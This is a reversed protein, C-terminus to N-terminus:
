NMVTVVYFFAAFLVIAAVVLVIIMAAMMQTSQRRRSRLSSGARAPGGGAPVEAAPHGAAIAQPVVGQPAADAFRGLQPFVQEALEWQRWGERWVFSDGTVRGESIWGRLLDGAAPGYQGGSPPRVYWLASPAEGIPDSGSATLPATGGTPVAAPMAPRAATAPAAVPAAYPISSAVRVAAPVPAVVAGAVPAAAAVPVAPAYGPAALAAAPVAPAGAPVPAPGGPASAPQYGVAPEGSRRTSAYQLAISDGAQPPSGLGSDLVLGADADGAVTQMAESPIDVRAGCHPCIGRKGALFSKVNLKHGNPCYFKIGM